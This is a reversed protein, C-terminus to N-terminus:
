LNATILACCAPLMAAMVAACVGIAFMLAMLEGFRDILSSASGDALPEMLAAILRLAAASAGLKMLPVLCMWIMLAVGAVGLMGRAAGVGGLVSGLADSVGGGIVPVVNEVASKAAKMTAGDMSIGALGTASLLGGYLFVSAGLLWRLASKMLDFLRNLAYRESVACCLAALAGMGCLRLGWDRLARHIFHTCLGSLSTAASPWFTGGSLAAASVLAPTLAETADILGDILGSLQRQGDTWVRTLASACCLACLLNMVRDMSGRGCISRVLACGAAPLALDLTLVSLSASVAQKVHALLADPTFGKGSMLWEIFGTLDFGQSQVFRTLEEAFCPRSVLTM